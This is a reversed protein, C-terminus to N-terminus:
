TAEELDSLQSTPPGPVQICTPKAGSSGGVGRHWATLFTFKLTSPSLCIEWLGKEMRRQVIPMKGSRSPSLLYKNHMQHPLMLAAARPSSSTVARQSTQWGTPLHPLVLLELARGQSESQDMGGGVKGGSPHLYRM